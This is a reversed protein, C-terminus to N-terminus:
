DGEPASEPLTGSSPVTRAPRSGGRGRGGRGRRRRRRPEGTGGERQPQSSRPQSSSSQSLGPSPVERLEEPGEETDHAASAEPEQENGEVPAAAGPAADFYAPQLPAPAPEGKGAEPKKRKLRDRMCKRM